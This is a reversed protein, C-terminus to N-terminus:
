NLEKAKALRSAEKLISSAKMNGTVVASGKNSMEFSYSGDSQKIAFITIDMHDLFYSFRAYYGINPPALKSIKDPSFESRMASLAIEDADQASIRFTGSGDSKNSKMTTACSSLLLATIVAFFINIKSM